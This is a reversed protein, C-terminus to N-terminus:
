PTVLRFFRPSDGSPPLTLQFQNNILEPVGNTWSVWVVPALLNTASEVRYGIATAPWGLRSGGPAATLSLNPPAPVVDITVSPSTNTAGLNDTVVARVHYHGAPVNSWTLTYPTASRTGLSTDNAFFQVQAVAGYPDNASASLALSVPHVFLSNPPPSNLAVTPLPNMVANLELDFALDESAPSSQHVEAALWNLRSSLNTPSIAAALVVDEAAGIIDSTALTQYNATRSLNNRMVEEGNLYVAIGDDRLVRLILSQAGSVSSFSRRFYTTVHKDNYDPGYDLVTAERGRGYGLPSPGTRWDGGRLFLGGKWTTGLDSGDDVYSWSAGRPVVSMLSGSPPLVTVYIVASTTRLGGNDQAVAQFTHDGPLPNTWTFSWPSALVQGLLGGDGYYEVRTVVGDDSLSRLSIPINAPSTFLSFSGPSGVGVVPPRNASDTTTFQWVPGSNTQGARVSKVQWHYTTNLSLNGLTWSTNTATGQLQAAGPSPATGFYVLWSTQAPPTAVLSVNDLSVNMAGLSDEEIFAVRVKSGHYASLDAVINTWGTMPTDNTSTRFLVALTGNTADHLEVRFEHNTAFAPAYSRIRHSWSLQIPWASDPIAVEQWLTHRGNGYQQSLAYRSGALPSQAGENGPPDYASTASVWGGAGSDERTWNALLLEFGGNLILEGERPGWALDATVPVEEALHAPSPTTASPPGDNDLLLTSSLASTFGTATAFLKVTRLPDVSQNNDAFLSAYTSTQGAPIVVMGVPRLGLPTDSVLNVPLNTTLTGSLRVQVANSLIGVGEKVFWPSVLSLSTNENDIVQVAGTASTWNVVSAVLHATRTGDIRLNDQARVQFVASTQGAPISAYALNGPFEFEGAPSSSLLVTVPDDVAATTTVRGSAYPGGEPLSPPVQLRLSATENDHVTVVAFAPEFFPATATIVAKRSGDLRTDNVPTIKFVTNTQGAPITVTAPVTVESTDSSKLSVVLNSVVPAPAVVEGSTVLLIQGETFSSGRVRLTLPPLVNSCDPMQTFDNEIFDEPVGQGRSLGLVGIVGQLVTIRITGDFFLEIQSDNTTAALYYMPVLHSFTVALRDPFQKWTVRGGANPTDWPDYHEYLSSIQRNSFHNALYSASPNKNPGGFTVCGDLSVWCRNTAEGYLSVKAGGTLVVEAEQNAFSDEIGLSTGNATDSPLQNAPQICAVYGRDTPQPYFTIMGNTVTCPRDYYWSQTLYEDRRVDLRSAQALTTGATLNSIWLTNSYSGVPLSAGGDQVSFALTVQSNAPLTGSSPTLEFPEPVSAAWTLAAAGHNTLTYTAYFSRFPGGEPGLFYLEGAPHKKSTFELAELSKFSFARYQVVHTVPNSFLVSLSHNGVPFKAAAASLSVSVPQSARGALTGSAPSVQYPSDARAIWSVAASASNSVLYNPLTVTFPGGYYGSATGGLAPSVRLTDPLSFDVVVPSTKTSLPAQAAFGLGRKAFATWLAASNTGKCLVQEAQLIADRAQVFTPNPPSLKMGDTVLQLSLNNGPTYGLKAILNARADWLMSCWVEGVNHVEGASSGAFLPSRHAGAHPALSEIDSFILPNVQLNTSYPYRRIGFYYNDGPNDFHGAYNNVGFMAYGGLPYHAALSSNTPALLALAYFDSWGEGLGRPQLDKIGVGGGVLRCSLGHAYEHLIITADLDGDRQPTPSEFVYMQMRPPLGDPPTGFNANSTGGGDQAEARVPDYSQGGRGFNNEQFNGSAENFGLQYLRDHIWNNWYFLNVVAAKRYASPEQTLDLPFDFVRSPMGQPRPLDAENDKDLDTYADVNNGFTQNIGDNIWGAPSANTDFAKLTVLVRSVSPPQSNSGPGAYGPLLPTPSDDNYVRLTINSIDATLNHRLWVEGTQADVLTQYMRELARPTFIVEWTLRMTQGSLPLWVLRIRADGALGGGRWQQTRDTGRADESAFAIEGDPLGLNLNTCAAALAALPTLSPEPVADTGQGALGVAAPNALFQSSLNVIQGSATVHGLFVAEFITIGGHQQEWVTTRLGNHDGISDRSIRAQDLAQAGHGFLDRHQEVFDKIVRHPDAPATPAATTEGTRTPPWLFAEASGLWQPAGTVRHRDLRLGPVQRRLAEEQAQGEGSIVAPVGTIGRRDLDELPAGPGSFARATESFALLLWGLTGLFGFLASWARVANCCYKM